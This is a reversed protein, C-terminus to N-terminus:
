PEVWGTARVALAHQRPDRGFVLGGRSASHAPVYDLVAEGTELLDRDHWLEGVVRVGAAAADGGNAVTFTVLYGAGAQPAMSTVRVALAPPTATETLAHWGVYGLTGAVLLAGLAAVANEWVRAGSGRRAPSAAGDQGEKGTLTM